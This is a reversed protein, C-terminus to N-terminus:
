TIGENYQRDISKHEQNKVCPHWSDSNSWLTVECTKEDWHPFHACSKEKQCSTVHCLLRDWHYVKNSEFTLFEFKESVFCYGLQIRVTFTVLFKFKDSVWSNGLVVTLLWRLLVVAFCPILNIKSKNTFCIHVTLLLTFYRNNFQFLLSEIM